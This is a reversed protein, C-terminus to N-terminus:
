QDDVKRSCVRLSSINPLKLPRIAVPLHHSMTHKPDYATEERGEKRRRGVLFKISTSVKVNLSDQRVKKGRENDARSLVADPGSSQVM